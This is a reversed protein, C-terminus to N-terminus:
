HFIFNFRKQEVRPSSSNKFPHLFMASGLLSFATGTLLKLAWLHRLLSMFCLFERPLFLMLSTQLSFLFAILNPVLLVTM